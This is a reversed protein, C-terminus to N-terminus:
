YRKKNSANLTHAYHDCRLNDGIHETDQPYLMGVVGIIIKKLGHRFVLKNGSKTVMWGIPTITLESRTYGKSFARTEKVHNHSKNQM